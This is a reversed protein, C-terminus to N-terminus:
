EWTVKTIRVKEPENGKQIISVVQFYQDIQWFLKQQISSDNVKASRDIFISEVKGSALEDLSIIIMQKQIEPMDSNATSTISLTNQEADILREETYNENYHNQSIDPLSLFASALGRVEERKIYTTDTKGDMSETKVLQYFSTDIHNVQGKIISLASIVPEKDSEKKEKCAIFFLSLFIFLSLINKM